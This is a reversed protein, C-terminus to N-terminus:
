TKPFLCGTKQAYDKYEQGFVALLQKEEKKAFHKWVFYLILCAELLSWSQLLIAIAPNVLLVIGLYMPHRFLSYPGQKALVSRKKATILAFASWVLLSAYLLILLLFIFFALSKSIPLLPIELIIDLIIAIVGIFVNISGAKMITKFSGEQHCDEPALTM